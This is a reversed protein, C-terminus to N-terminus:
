AAHDAGEFNRAVPRCFRGDGPQSVIKGKQCALAGRLYTATV